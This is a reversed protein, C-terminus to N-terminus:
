SGLSGHADRREREQHVLEVTKAYGAIDVRNDRKPYNSERSVKVLIQILGVEEPSVVAGPKLKGRLLATVMESTQGFNDLPHGYQAQRDVDVIRDAEQCITENALQNDM